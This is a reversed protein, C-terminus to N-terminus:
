PSSVLQICFQSPPPLRLSTTSLDKLNSAKSWLRAVIVVLVAHLIGLHSRVVMKYLHHLCRFINGVTPTDLLVLHWLSLTLPLPNFPIPTTIEENQATPIQFSSTSSITSTHVTVIKIHCRSPFKLPSLISISLGSTQYQCSPSGEMSYLQIIRYLDWERCISHAKMRYMNSANRSLHFSSFRLYALQLPHKWM